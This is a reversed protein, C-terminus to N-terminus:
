SPRGGKRRDSVAGGTQPRALAAPTTKHMVLALCLVLLPDTIEPTHGQLRTQGWEIILMMGAALAAATVPRGWQRQALWLLAGYLFIKEFLTAINHLMSGGLFGYFPQWHFSAPTARPELPSLGTVLLIGALGLALVGHGLPMKQLRHWLLFGLVLGAVNASTINNDVIIVELSMVVAALGALVRWPHRGRWLAPWLAAVSAWAVTNRLLDTWAPWPHFLVPKLANKIEQWDLSPVFPLLRYSLWAGMLLLAFTEGRRLQGELPSARALPMGALAAGAGAGMLNWVVDLFNADRTPLYLQLLQLGLGLGLAAAALRGRRGWALVGFYGFPLFLVINSLVDSHVIRGHWSALFRDWAGPVMVQFDFPYLSGYVILLCVLLFVSRM